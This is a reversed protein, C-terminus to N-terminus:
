SPEEGSGDVMDAERYAKHLRLDNKKLIECWCGTALRHARAITGYRIRAMGATKSVTRVKPTVIEDVIAAEMM